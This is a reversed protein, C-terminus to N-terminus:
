SVGCESGIYTTLEEVAAEYEPSSLATSGSTLGEDALTGLAEAIVDIDDDLDAPVLGKLEEAATQAQDTGNTGGLTAAQLKGWTLGINVCDSVSDIAGGAEDLLSTATDRADDILSDVSEEVNTESDDSSSGSGSGTDAGSDSQREDSSSTSDGDDSSCGAALLAGCTLVLLALTSFKRM